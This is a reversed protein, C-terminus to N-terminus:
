TENSFSQSSRLYNFILPYFIMNRMYSQLLNKMRSLELTISTMLYVKVIVNSQKYLKMVSFSLLIGICSFSLIYFTRYYVQGVNRDLLIDPPPLFLNCLIRRYSRHCRLIFFPPTKLFISSLSINLFVSVTKFPVTAHSIAPFRFLYLHISM